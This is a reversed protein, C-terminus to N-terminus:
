PSGLWLLNSNNPMFLITLIPWDFPFSLYRDYITYLVDGVPQCLAQEWKIEHVWPMPIWTSGLFSNQDNQQTFTDLRHHKKTLILEGLCLNAWLCKYWILNNTTSTKTCFKLYFDLTHQKNTQKFFMLIKIQMWVSVDRSNLCAIEQLSTLRCFAARQRSEKRVLSSSCSLWSSYLTSQFLDWVMWCDVASQESSM